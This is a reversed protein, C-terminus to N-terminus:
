FGFALRRYEHLIKQFRDGESEFHLTRKTDTMIEINILLWTEPLFDRVKRAWEIVCIGDGDIYEELGLSWLSDNSGIRYLDIHFLPLRGSQYEKILTYSPSTVQERVELGLAVGQAFVTKGAGMTGELLVVSGPMVLTGLRLGLRQTQAESHSICDLKQDVDKSTSM